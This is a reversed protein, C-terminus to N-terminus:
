DLPLGLYKLPLYSVKYVLISVFFNMDVVVQMAVLELKTLKDEFRISSLFLSSFM